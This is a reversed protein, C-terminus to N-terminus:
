LKRGNGVINERTYILNLADLTHKATWGWQDLDEVLLKAMEIIREYDALKYHAVQFLNRIYTRREAISKGPILNRYTTSTHTEIRETAALLLRHAKQVTVMIEVCRSRFSSGQLSADILKHVDPTKLHLDRSKRAKHMHELETVLNEFEALGTCYNLIQKYKAYAEDKKLKDKIERRSM